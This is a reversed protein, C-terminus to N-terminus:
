AIARPSLAGHCHKYKQGSGCPCVANRSLGLNAFPDTGAAAGGPGVEAMPSGALSGFLEPRSASGDFDASDDLGTLPDIHGTLFDPLEPLSDIQPPEIRLEARFLIKTVEERLTDLMTEFLGFAEQKYENIPQKQAMGRMWIVQRLADLTALHEKWHHDLQRLLVDKEVIRWIAPDSSAIKEDTMADTLERLREQLLESEVQEEALWADFPPDFGLIEETRAKLAPIDWQEPYSGPPCAAGVLTNITDHRMDVVVEDVTESDMIEARQEYVVKRQDNM